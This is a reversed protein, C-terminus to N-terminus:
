LGLVPLIETCYVREKKIFMSTPVPPGCPARAGVKSFRPCLAGKQTGQSGEKFVRFNCFYSTFYVNGAIESSILKLIEGSLMDGFGRTLKCILVPGEEDNLSNQRTM